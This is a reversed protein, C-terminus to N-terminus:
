RVFRIQLNLDIHLNGDKSYFKGFGYRTSSPTDFCTNKYLYSKFEDRNYLHYCVLEGDEKVIIYGGLATDLGSWQKTPTMGLAVAALFNKIRYEYDAKELGYKARLVANTSVIEVLEEMTSGKGEFYAALMKSLIEPFVTDIRTLNRRFMENSIGDFSLTGGESILNAIRNQIKSKGLSENLKEPGSTAGLVKYSFNTASSPNLLTSPSGLMSKISFGQEPMTDSIRDHVVLTLDEKNHSSAKIGSCHLAKMLPAVSSISFTRSKSAKMKELVEAVGRKIVANQISGLDNGTSDHIGISGDLFVYEQREAGKESRIVKLVSFYKDFIKELDEDAAAIQRDTLIKIFAYFESWEGINGTVLKTEM